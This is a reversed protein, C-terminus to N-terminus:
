LKFINSKYILDTLKNMEISHIPPFELRTEYIKKEVYFEAKKNKKSEQEEDYFTLNKNDWVLEDSWTKRKDLQIKNSVYQNYTYDLQISVRKTGQDIFRYKLDLSQSKGCCSLTYSITEFLVPRFSNNQYHFVILIKQLTASGTNGEFTVFLMKKGDGLIDLYEVSAFNYWSPVIIKEPKGVLSQNQLEYVYLLMENGSFEEIICNLKDKNKLAHFKCDQYAHSTNEVTEAKTSLSFLILFYLLLVRPQVLKMRSVQVM